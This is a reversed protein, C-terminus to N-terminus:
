FGELHIAVGVLGRLGQELDLQIVLSVSHFCRRGQKCYCGKGKKVYLDACVKQHLNNQVSGKGPNGTVLYIDMGLLDWNNVVNNGVFGYLNLGGQEEIPDRSLWSGLNADYFRYGYYSLQTEADAYKTSFRFNFKDAKEGEELTVAGFPSYEYHAVVAGSQNLYESVNGNGDYTPLYTGGNDAVFLLGGVGGTGTLTQTQDLGWVYYNSAAATLTGTEYTKTIEELLNWKDYVFMKESDLMWNGVSGRLAWHLSEAHM